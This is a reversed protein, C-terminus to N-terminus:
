SAAIATAASAPDEEMRVGHHQIARQAGGTAATSWGSVNGSGATEVDQSTAAATASLDRDLIPGPKRFPSICADAHCATGTTITAAVRFLAVAAATGVTHDADVTRGDGFRGTQHKQAGPKEAADPKVSHPSGSSDSSAQLVSVDERLGVNERLLSGLVQLRFGLIPAGATHLIPLCFLHPSVHAVFSRHAVPAYPSMAHESEPKRTGTTTAISRTPHTQHLTFLPTGLPIGIPLDTHALPEVINEVPQYRSILGRQRNGFFYPLSATALDHPEVPFIGWTPVRDPVGIQYM